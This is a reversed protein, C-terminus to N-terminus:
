ESITTYLCLKFGLIMSRMVTRIIEEEKKKKPSIFIHKEKEM